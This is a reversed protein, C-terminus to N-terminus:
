LQCILMIESLFRVKLVPHFLIGQVILWNSITGRYSIDLFCGLASFGEKYLFFVNKLVKLCQLSFAMYVNFLKLSDKVFNVANPYLYQM